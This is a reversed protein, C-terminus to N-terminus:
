ILEVSKIKAVSEPMKALFFALVIKKDIFLNLGMNGTLWNRGIWRDQGIEKRDFIGREEFDTGYYELLKNVVYEIERTLVGTSLNKSETTFYFYSTNNVNAFNLTNFVGLHWHNLQKIIFSKELSYEEHTTVLASANDFEEFLKDVTDSSPQNHILFEEFETITMIRTSINWIDYLFNTKNIMDADNTVLIECYGAFYAHRGDNIMNMMQQKKPKGKVIGLFELGSHMSMFLNYFDNKEKDKIFHKKYSENFSERDTVKNGDFGQINMSQYIGGLLSAKHLYQILEKFKKQEESMTKSLDLMAELFDYMTTTELLLPKLQEPFEAPLNNIDVMEKLPLPILKFSNRILNILPDESTLLETEFGWDYNNYHFRPTRYEFLINKEYFWCNYDVITEMFDMDKFKEDTKDRVLDQIHAESFCYVNKNKDELIRAYLDKGVEKKLFQFVNTDLYIRM